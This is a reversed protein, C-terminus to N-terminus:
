FDLNVHVTKTATPGCGNSNCPTISVQYDGSEVWRTYFRAVRGAYNGYSYSVTGSYSVGHGSVQYKYATARNVLRFEFETEDNFEAWAPSLIVPAESPKSEGSVTHRHVITEEDSCGRANCAKIDYTYVGSSLSETFSEGTFKGLYSNDRYVEVYQVQAEKKWRVTFKSDGPIGDDIYPEPIRTYQLVSFTQEASENSCMSGNWCAEVTFHYRYGNKRAPADSGFDLVFWDQWYESADVHYYKREGLDLRGNGNIDTFEESTENIRFFDPYNHVQKWILPFSLHSLEKHKPGNLTPTQSRHRGYGHRLSKLDGQSLRTGGLQEITEGTDLNKYRFVKGSADSTCGTRDSNHYHMISQYDYPQTRSVLSSTEFASRLACPVFEENVTLSFRETGRQHYDRDTRQHEHRYGLIHLLEHIAVDIGCYSPIWAQRRGGNGFGINASCIKAKESEENLAYGYINLYDTHSSTKQIFNVRSARELTEIAKLIDKEHQSGRTVGILQFPVIEKPWGVANDLGPTNTYRTSSFTQQQMVSDLVMDGEVQYEPQFMAINAASNLPASSTETLSATTAGAITPIAAAGFFLYKITSFM